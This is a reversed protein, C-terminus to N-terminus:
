PTFEVHPKGDMGFILKGTVDGDLRINAADTRPVYGLHWEEQAMIEDASSGYPTALQDLLDYAHDDHPIHESRVLVQIANPDCPNDPEPRLILTCGSPLVQIIALAPPRHFAGVIPTKM